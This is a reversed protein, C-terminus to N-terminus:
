HLSSEVDQRKVNALFKKPLLISNWSKSNDSTVVGVFQLRNQFLGKTALLLKLLPFPQM